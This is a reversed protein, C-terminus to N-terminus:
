NDNTMSPPAERLKKRVSAAGFAGGFIVFSLQGNFLSLKKVGEKM